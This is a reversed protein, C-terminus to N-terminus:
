LKLSNAIIKASLTKIVSFAFDGGIDHAFTKINDWVKASKISSLYEHGEYTLSKYIAYYGGDTYDRINVNIYGAENLRQTVYFITSEQYNAMRPNGLVESLNLPELRPHEELVLLLDRVCDLDLKM